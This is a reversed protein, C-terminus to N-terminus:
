QKELSLGIAETLRAHVSDGVDITEFGPLSEDVRTTMQRGDTLQLTLLRNPRDIAVVKASVDLVGVVVARPKTGKPSVARVTEVTAEPKKGSKGIYLAISEHYEVKVPDNIEIRDFHPDDAPIKITVMDGDAARLTMARTTRDLAVVTAMIVRTDSLEVGQAIAPTPIALAPMVVLSLLLACLTLKTKM